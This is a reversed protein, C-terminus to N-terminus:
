APIHYRCQFSGEAITSDCTIPVGLLDEFLTQCDICIQCHDRAICDLTCNHETFIFSGDELQEYHCMHGDQSLLETLVALQEARTKGVFRPAHAAIIQERRSRLVLRVSEDGLQKEMHNLLDLAFQDYAKPFYRESDSTLTYLHSPRGISRRLGSIEVLGDRELLALHQRVGVAGIDLEQSLEIATMPGQRRLLQLISHRTAGQEKRDKTATNNGNLQARNM